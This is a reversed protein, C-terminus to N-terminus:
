GNEENLEGDEALEDPVWGQIERVIERNCMFNTGSLARIENTAGGIDELGYLLGEELDSFLRRTVSHHKWADYDNKNIDIRKERLREIIEDIM